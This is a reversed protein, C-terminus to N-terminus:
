TSGNISKVTTAPHDRLKPHPKLWTMCQDTKGMLQHVTSNSGHNYTVNQLKTTLLLRILKKQKFILGFGSGKLKTFFM